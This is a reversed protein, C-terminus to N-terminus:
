GCQTLLIPIPRSDTSCGDWPCQSHPPRGTYTHVCQVWVQVVCQEGKDCMSEQKVYMGKSAKVGSDMVALMTEPKMKEAPEDWVGSSLTWFMFLHNILRYGFMCVHPSCGGLLQHLRPLRGHTCQVWVVGPVHTLSQVMTMDM